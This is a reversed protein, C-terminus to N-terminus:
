QTANPSALLFVNLWADRQLRSAWLERCSRQVYIFHESSMKDHFEAVKQGIREIESSEVWVCYKKWDIVNDFPLRCDTDVFIPIRGLCLTEYFRASFNGTGRVCVTYDSDIINHVFQAKVKEENGAETGKYKKRLVFNTQVLPSSALNKLIRSRLGTHEVAAPEWTTMGAKWAFRRSALRASRFIHSMFNGGAQGCFGVLPKPQKKRLLLEGGAYKELYDEIFVPMTQAGTNRSKYVSAEFITLGKFPVNATFDGTSFAIVKKGKRLGENVANHVMGVKGHELYYNWTMPLIWVDADNLDSAESLGPLGSLSRSHRKRVTPKDYELWRYFDNIFHRATGLEFLDKLFVVKLSGPQSVPSNLRHVEPIPM